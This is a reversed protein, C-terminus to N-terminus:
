AAPLSDLLFEAWQGDVMIFLSYFDARYVDFFSKSLGSFTEYFWYVPPFVPIKLSIKPIKWLILFIKRKKYRLGM